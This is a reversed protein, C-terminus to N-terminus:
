GRPNDDETVEGASGEGLPVEGDCHGNLFSADVEAGMGDAGGLFASLGSLGGRGLLGPILM